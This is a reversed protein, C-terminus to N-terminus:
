EIRRSLVGRVEARPELVEDGTIEVSGLDFRLPQEVEAASAAGRRDREPLQKRVRLDHGDVEFRLVDLDCGHSDLVVPERVDVEVNGRAADLERGVDPHEVDDKECRHVLM